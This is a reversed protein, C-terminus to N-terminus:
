VNNVEIFHNLLYTSGCILIMKPNQSKAVVLAEKPENISQIDAFKQTKTALIFLENIPMARPTNKIDTLILRTGIKSLIELILTINKDQLISCIIITSNSEYLDKLSNYLSEAGHANHMADIIVLPNTNIIELRGSWKTHKAAYQISNIGIQLYKFAAYACLFNDVQFSGALNLHYVESQNNLIVTYNLNDQITTYIYDKICFYQDSQMSVAQILEPTDSGLITYGNKIIGAKANAILDLTSGLWKTHELSINTIIHIIADVVNTADDQGGMGCELILFDINQQAFYNFMILCMMEFFSLHLNNNLLIQSLLEYQYNLDIDSIHTGNLCIVENIKHLHPSTFKGVKYGSHIIGCEIFSATSGKGNTGAIHIVKYKLQPNGCLLLAAQIRDLGPTIQQPDLKMLNDISTLM